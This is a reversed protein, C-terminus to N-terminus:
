RREGVQEAQVVVWLHKQIRLRWCLLMGLKLLRSRCMGTWHDGKCRNAAQQLVREREWRSTVGREVVRGDAQEM